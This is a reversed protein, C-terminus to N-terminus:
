FRVKFANIGHCLFFDLAESSFVRVSLWGIIGIPLSNGQYLSKLLFFRECDAYSRTDKFPEFVAAIAVLGPNVPNQFIVNRLLLGPSLSSIFGM